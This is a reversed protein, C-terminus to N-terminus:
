TPRHFRHDGNPLRDTTYRPDHARHHHHACLLVGNALDTTGDGRSWFKM